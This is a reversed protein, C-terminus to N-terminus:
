AGCCKKYKKGSGCPCPDNRGVQATERRFPEQEVVEMEIDDDFFAPAMGHKDLFKLRKDILRQPARSALAEDFFKAHLAYLKPFERKLRLLESRFADIDMLIHIEMSAINCRCKECDCGEDLMAFLDHFLGSYGKDDITEIDYMFAARELMKASRESVCGLQAAMDRIYKYYPINDTRMIVDLTKMLFVEVFEKSIDPHAKLSRVAEQLYAETLADDNGAMFTSMSLYLMVSDAGMDKAAKAASACIKRAEDLEGAEVRCKLLGVRARASVSDLKISRQFEAIAKRRWGRLMYADALAAAYEANEPSDKCLAELVSAAKGSKGQEAYLEALERKPLHQSPFLECATKLLAEADEYLEMRRANAAQALLAAAAEPLSSQESSRRDYEARKDPHSLTEYAARLAKFEEPFYEPPYQRVKKFYARKIFDAKATNEVGLLTYYDDM